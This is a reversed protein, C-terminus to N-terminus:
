LAQNEREAKRHIPPNDMVVATLKEAPRFRIFGAMAETIAASTVTTEVTHFYSAGQRSVLGIANVRDPSHVPLALTKGQPQWAYPICANASFGSEDLFFLNIEDGVEKTKLAILVRRGEKFAVPDQKTKLSQRCSWIWYRKKLWREITSFAVTKGTREHLQAPLLRARLPPLWETENIRRPRAPRKHDRLGLLGKEEWAALWGSVTDRNVVFIDAM